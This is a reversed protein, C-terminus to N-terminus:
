NLLLAQVPTAAGGASFAAATEVVLGFFDCGQLDYGDLTSPDSYAYTLSNNILGTGSSALTLTFGTANADANDGRMFVAGTEPAGADGLTGWALMLRVVPSTTLTAGVPMRARVIIRTADGRKCWKFVSDDIGYPYLLDTASQATRADDNVDVWSSGASSPYVVQGGGPRTINGGKFTTLAM